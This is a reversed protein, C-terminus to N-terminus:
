LPKRFNPKAYTHLDSWDRVLALKKKFCVVQAAEELTPPAIGALSDLEGQAAYVEQQLAQQLADRAAADYAMGELMMELVPELLAQSHEYYRWQEPSLMPRMAQWAELTVASDTANYTDRSLDDTWDDPTGWYPQRTLVSALVELGNELEAYLTHWALMTDEVGAMRVGHLWRLVFAEYLANHCVKVTRPDELLPQLGETWLRAEEEQTWVRSWDFRRLPVSLVYDPQAAFSLVTVGHHVTGEIDFGLEKGKLMALEHLLLTFNSPTVVARVRPAWPEAAERVAKAVDFRLLALQSPEYLVAAPHLAAM